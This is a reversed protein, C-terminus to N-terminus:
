MTKLGFYILLVPLTVTVFLIIKEFDIKRTTVLNDPCLSCSAISLVKNKKSYEIALQVYKGKTEKGNIAKTDFSITRRDILRYVYIYTTSTDNRKLLNYPVIGLVKEVSDKQMGIQLSIVKELSTYKPSQIICSSLLLFIFGVKLVKNKM